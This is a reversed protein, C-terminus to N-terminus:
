RKETKGKRAKLFAAGMAGPSDSKGAPQKEV